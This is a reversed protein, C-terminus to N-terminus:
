HIWVAVAQQVGEGAVAHRLWARGEWGGAREWPGTCDPQPAQDGPVPTEPMPM